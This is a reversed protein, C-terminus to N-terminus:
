PTAAAPTTLVLTPNGNADTLTLGYLPPQGRPGVDPNYGAAFRPTTGDKDLVALVGSGTLQVRQNGASDYLFLTGKGGLGPQLHALVAGTQGVLDFESAQVVGPSAQAPLLFRQTLLSVVVGLTVMGAVTATHRLSRWLNPHHITPILKEEQTKGAKNGNACTRAQIM